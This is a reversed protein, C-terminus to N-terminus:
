KAQKRAVWIEEAALDFSADALPVDEAPAQVLPFELGSAAQM